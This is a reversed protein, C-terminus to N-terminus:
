ERRRHWDRRRRQRAPGFDAVQMPETSQRDLPLLFHGSIWRMVYDILMPRRACRRLVEGLILGYDKRERILTTLLRGTVRERFRLSKSNVWLVNFCVVTAQIHSRPDANAGGIMSSLSDFLRDVGGNADDMFAAHALMPGSIGLYNQGMEVFQATWRVYEDRTILDTDTAINLVPQLWAGGNGGMFRYMHRLPQDDTVFLIKEQRALLMADFMDADMRQVFERVAPTLDEDVLVAARKSNEEAWRIAREVDEFLDAIIEPGVESLSLKGNHYGAMKLGSHASQQLRERRARLKDLVSQPLYIPGCVDEIAKLLGIRWATWFTFLDLACGAKNNAVIAQIAANREELTGEAVKLKVGQSTLGGAVEITDMGVRHALVALPMPGNLYQSEEKEIWDRRDKIQAIFGDMGGPADVDVTVTKFGFTEPFRAEYHALVYHLRAVFKHRVQEVRGEKGAPGVFRDGPKLGMVVKALAHDPEWSEPDIKRLNSDPEVVFFAKTEDDYTLDVAANPQVQVVKWEEPQRDDRGLALVLTSLTMWARPLDRHKLFLRYAFEAARQEFGFHSLLTALRFQDSPSPWDLREVPKGLEEFIETSKDQRILIEIKLLRANAHDPLEALVVEVATLAVDLDNMNWAHAAVTWNTNASNRLEDPLKARADRFATDRRSAALTQLYLSTAPSPRTLDVHGELLYSSEETLEQDRLEVALMYRSVMDLTEPANAALDKLRQLGEGDYDGSRRRRRIDILDAAIETPGLARLGAVALQVRDGDDLRLAAEGILRWRLRQVRTDLDGVDVALATKLAGSPDGFSLQMEARLVQNERDPDGDLGAIAEEDRDQVSRVLALLRRLNPEDSAKPIGKVLLAEAEAYRQCLRLLVATNNLHAMMDHRDSFDVEIMHEVHAKMDDAALTLDAGTVPGFGGPVMGTSDVFLALVALARARKFEPLNMHRRSAEITRQAWDPMDRIRLFETLGLDAPATGKQDAPILDEPDGEWTSRAAAQLLISVAQDAAPEMKSAQQALEVAEDYRQQITRALALNALANADTPQVAYAAEFRRAAEEECGLDIAISALNTELRFKAWPKASLDEKNLIGLLGQKAILTQRADKFLDRFTDIRAHLAPDEDSKNTGESPEVALGMGKLQEAVKNALVLAFEDNAGAVGTSQRSSIGVTSPQFAAYAVDHISILTQLQGWGYVAITLDHGEARLLQEVAIAADTAGTDDPATTAFILEKLGAKITLADRADSLIKAQKIPEDIRRCQVGVFHDGKGGRRGLVDIGRQKQGNRGYEQANPDQLESRFLLVCNRQFAQHDKPRPIEVALRATLPIVNPSSDIESEGIVTDDSSGEENSM